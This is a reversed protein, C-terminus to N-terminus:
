QVCKQAILRNQNFIDKKRTNCLYKSSIFFSIFNRFQFINFYLAICLLTIEIKSIFSPLTSLCCFWYFLCIDWTAFITMKVNSQHWIVDFHSSRSDPIFKVDGDDLFPWDRLHHSHHKILRAPSHTRRYMCAISSPVRM